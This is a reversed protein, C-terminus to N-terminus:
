PLATYVLRALAVMDSNPIPGSDYAGADFSGKTFEVNAFAYKPETDYYDHAASGLGSPTATVMGPLGGGSGGVPQHPAILIEIKTAAHTFTCLSQRVRGDPRTSLKGKLSVGTLGLTSAVTAVPVITCPNPVATASATPAFVSLCAAIVAASGVVLWRGGSRFM